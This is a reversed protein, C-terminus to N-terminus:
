IRADVPHVQGVVRVWTRITGITIDIDKECEGGDEMGINGCSVRLTEKWM